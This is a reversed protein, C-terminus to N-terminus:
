QELLMKNQSIGPKASDACTTLCEEEAAEEEVEEENDEEVTDDEDELDEVDEGIVQMGEIDSEEESSRCSWLLSDGNM